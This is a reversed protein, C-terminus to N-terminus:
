FHHFIDGGHSYFINNKVTYVPDNEQSAIGVECGNFVNNYILHRGTTGSIDVGWYRFAHANASDRETFLNCYVDCPTVSHIRVGAGAYFSDDGYFINYRATTKGNVLYMGHGHHGATAYSDIDQFTCYEIVHVGDEDDGSIYIASNDATGSRNLASRRFSCGHLTLTGAAGWKMLLKTASDWLNCDTFVIGTCDKLRALYQTNTSSNGGKYFSINQTTIYNKTDIDICNARVCAEIGPTTYATDPDTTSYCYLVNSAWFWDRASGCAAISTKAQGLTGDFWVAYPQTTLTAKWTDAVGSGLVMYISGGDTDYDTVGRSAPFGDYAKSEYVRKAGTTTKRPGQGDFGNAWYAIWYVTSASLTAGSTVTATNWGNRSPAALEASTTNAVITGPLNANDAYVAFKFKTIATDGGAGFYAKFSQLQGGGATTVKIYYIYNASMFGTATGTDGVNESVAGNDAWTTIIDAGSIIPDAGTGYAGFTIPLGASGSSPVTLQERWTCGRKFLVSDGAAFTAGNVDAITDWACHAGTLEQTTGDGGAAANTDVYYVTASLASACLLALAFFVISAFLFRYRRM